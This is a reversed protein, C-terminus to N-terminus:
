PRRARPASRARCKRRRKAEVLGDRPSAIARKPAASPLSSGGRPDLLERPEAAELAQAVEADRRLRRGLDGLGDGLTWARLRIRSGDRRGVDLLQQARDPSARPLVRPSPAAPAPSSSTQADEQVRPLVHERRRSRAPRAPAIKDFVPHAAHGRVHRHRCAGPRAPRRRDGAHVERECARCGGRRGLGQRDPEARRPAGPRPFAYGSAALVALVSLFRYLRTVM